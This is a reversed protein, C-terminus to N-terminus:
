SRLRHANKVSEIANLCEEERSRDGIQKYLNLAMEYSLRAKNHNHGARAADGLARHCNAQEKVDGVQKYLNLARAYDAKAKNHNRRACSVDGLGRYCKAEGQIHGIEAYVPKAEKYFGEAMDHGGRRLAIEALDSMCNAEGRIHGLEGYIPRAEEYYRKAEDYKKRAFAVDALGAICDARGLPLGARDFLARAEEYHKQAKAFSQRALAIHGIGKICKAQGIVDKERTYIELSDSYYRQAEAHKSRVLAIHGLGKLAAAQLTPDKVRRASENALELLQTSGFGSFRMFHTLCAAALISPQPRDAQMGLRLMADLNKLEASLRAAAKAGGAEGVKPGLREALGGYHAVARALDDDKPLCQSKAFDGIPRLVRLRMMGRTKEDFALGVARLTRAANTGVEPLLQDLDERAVGDPLVGLLGLLRRGENDMRESNMSTEFSVMVSLGSGPVGGKLIALRQKSWEEWLGELDFDAQALTALVSIALPVRDQAQLLGNLHKDKAHKQGSIELFMQRADALLLPQVVIPDRWRLGGPQQLGRLSAVLALRPIMALQGLLEETNVPDHEWPTDASDVVLAAAGNQLGAIIQPRLDDSGVVRIGLVKAIEAVVAEATMAGGCRVFYRRDKFRRKVREDHLASLCIASKGIGPAGLVATSPPAKTVMTEVLDELITDRDILQPPPPLPSPRFAAHLDSDSDAGPFPPEPANSVEREQAPPANEMRVGVLLEKKAEVANRDVLDIYVRSALLGPPECPQVRVPLLLGKEGTPDKVFAARWEAEGFASGFYAPSLVAITRRASLTARQMQHIFDSGPRFDSAQMVTSYGAAELTHAIWKAWPLDAKTYSIFFDQVVTNFRSHELGTQRMGM